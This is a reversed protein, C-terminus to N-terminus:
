LHERAAPEGAVAVVQRALVALRRDLEGARADILHRGGRRLEHKCEAIASMCRMLHEVDEASSLEGLAGRLRLVVAREMAGLREDVREAPVTALVSEVEAARTAVVLAAVVSAGALVPMGFVVALAGVAAAAGAKAALGPTVSFRLTRSAVDPAAPSVRAGAAVITASLAAAEADTLDGKLVFRQQSSLWAGRADDGLLNALLPRVYGLTHYPAEVAVARPTRAHPPPDCRLCEDLHPLVATGCALCVEAPAATV